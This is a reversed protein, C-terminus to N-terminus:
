FQINRNHSMRHKPEVAHKEPKQTACIQMKLIRENTKTNERLPCALRCHTEFYFAWFTNGLAFRSPWAFASLFSIDCIYIYIHIQLEESESVINVSSMRYGLKSLHGCQKGFVPTGSFIYTKLHDIYIYTYMYIVLLYAAEYGLWVLTKDTAFLM